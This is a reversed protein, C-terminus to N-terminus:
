ATKWEIKLYINVFQKEEVVMKTKYGLEELKDLIKKQSGTLGNSYYDGDGLGYQNTTLIFEGKKAKEKIKDLLEILIDDNNEKAIENAESATMFENM